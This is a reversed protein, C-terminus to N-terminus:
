YVVSLQPGIKVPQFVIGNSPFYDKLRGFTSWYNYL